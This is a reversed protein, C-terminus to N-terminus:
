KNIKENMDSKIANNETLMKEISSASYLYVNNIEIRNDKTLPFNIVNKNKKNKKYALSKKSWIYLCINLENVTAPIIADVGHIDNHLTRKTNYGMERTISVFHVDRVLSPYARLVRYEVGNILDQPITKLFYQNDRNYDMLLEEPTPINEDRLLHYNFSVTILPIAKKWEIKKNAKTKYYNIDYSSNHIINYIDETKIYPINNHLIPLYM